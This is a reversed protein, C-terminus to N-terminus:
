LNKRIRRGDDVALRLHEFRGAPVRVLVVNKGAKVVVNGRLIGKKHPVNRVLRLKGLGEAAAAETSGRRNGIPGLQIEFVLLECGDLPPAQDRSREHIRRVAAEGAGAFVLIGPLGRGSTEHVSIIRKLKEGARAPLVCREADGAERREATSELEREIGSWVM